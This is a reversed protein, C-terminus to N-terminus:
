PTNALEPFQHLWAAVAPARKTRTNKKTKKKTTLRVPEEAHVDHM